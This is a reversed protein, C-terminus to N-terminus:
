SDRGVQKKPGILQEAGPQSSSTCSQFSDDDPNPEEEECEELLLTEM